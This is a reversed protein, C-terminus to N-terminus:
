NRKYFLNINLLVLYFVDQNGLEYKEVIHLLPVDVGRMMQSVLKHMNNNELLMLSAGGKQLVKAEEKLIAGSDDM